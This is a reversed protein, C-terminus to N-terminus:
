EKKYILVRNTNTGKKNNTVGYINATKTFPTDNIFLYLPQMGIEITLLWEELLLTKGKWKIDGVEIALFGGPKIRKSLSSFCQFMYKQWDYPDNFNWPLTVVPDCGCFWMKMWLEQDYNVVNMFPPSTLILDVMTEPPFIKDVEHAAHSTLIYDLEPYTTDPCGSKLLAKSKRLIREYPDKYSPSYGLGRKENLKRQREPTTSQNPPLTYRSLHVDSHGTLISTVVMRIWQDIRSETLVEKLHIIRKLTDPHFFPLLEDWTPHWGGDPDGEIWRCFDDELEKVRTQLKSFIPPNLRPEVLKKCLLNVDNGIARHGMLIAQLIVTGRGMFPDMVIDSHGTFSKIFYEVLSPKFSARYPIQHLSHENKRQRTEWFTGIKTIM